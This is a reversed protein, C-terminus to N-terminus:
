PSVPCRGFADHDHGPERLIDHISEHCVPGPSRAASETLVIVHPELWLGHAHWVRRPGRMSDAVFWRVRGPDGDAESIIRDVARYQETWMTRPSVERAGFVVWGELRARGGAAKELMEPATLKEECGALMLAAVSFVTLLRRAM